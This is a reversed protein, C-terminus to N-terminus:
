RFGELSALNTETQDVKSYIVYKRDPSVDFSAGRDMDARRIAVVPKASREKVHYFMVKVSRTERDWELYHVGDNTPALSAWFFGRDM